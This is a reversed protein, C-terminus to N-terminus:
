KRTNFILNSDNWSHIQKYLAILPGVIILSGLITWLLWQGGTIRPHKNAARVANAFKTCVRFNWYYDYITLTLVTFILYFILGGVKKSGPDALNAEQAMKHIFYLHYIGLTIVTFILYKFLGRNTNLM